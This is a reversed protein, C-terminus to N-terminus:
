GGAKKPAPAAGGEAPPISVGPPPPTVQGPKPARDAETQPAKPDVQAQGPTGKVVDAANDPQCGSSWAALVACTAFAGLNRLVSRM